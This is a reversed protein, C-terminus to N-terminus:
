NKLWASDPLGNNSYHFLFIYAPFIRSSCCAPDHIKHYYPNDIKWAPPAFNSLNKGLFRCVWLFNMFISFKHLNPVMETIVDPIASGPLPPLSASYFAGGRRAAKVKQVKKYM